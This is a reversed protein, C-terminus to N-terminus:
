LGDMKPSFGRNKSVGVYKIVICRCTSKKNSMGALLIPVNSCHRFFCQNTPNYLPSWFGTISPNYLFGLIILILLFVILIEHIWPEYDCMCSKIAPEGSLIQNRQFLQSSRPDIREAGQTGQTWFFRRLFFPLFVLSSPRSLPRKLLFLLVHLIHLTTLPQNIKTNQKYM